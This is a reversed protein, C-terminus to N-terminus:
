SSRTCYNNQFVVNNLSLSTGLGNFKVKLSRQHSNEQPSWNRTNRSSKILAVQLYFLNLKRTHWRYVVWTGCAYLLKYPCYCSVIKDQNSPQIGQAGFKREDASPSVPKQSESISKQRLTLLMQFHAELTYSATLLMFTKVDVSIVRWNATNGPAPHYM